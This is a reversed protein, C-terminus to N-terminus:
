PTTSPPAATTATTAPDPAPTTTTTTASSGAGRQQELREVYRRADELTAEQKGAQVDPRRAPPVDDFTLDTPEAVTPQFWLVGGPRGQFIVVDEGDVGVYYTSRAFWWVAGAAAALVALVALSFLAVRWTFRRPRPPRPSAAPRRAAPEADHETAVAVGGGQSATTPEAAEGGPEPPLPPASVSTARQAGLEASAAAARGGDDVVDVIVVTINDRGGGENALRVLEAAADDPDALRRLTAAIREAEVENFLGDSCLLFRDGVYPVIEWSDVDVDEEIGLVRTVVNRQPHNRAEEATLRGERVLDEVLSHDETVQELEGDHFVYVRSDGVNAVVVVDDVDATAGPVLIVACLTTGMGRMSPEAASKDWVARNAVRIAHILGEATPEANLRLAEIAVQSAVEGAAHGGMGDAVAFLPEAVLSADQNVNRVMGTHTAAGHRLATM